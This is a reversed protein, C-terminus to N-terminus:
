NNSTGPRRQRMLEKIRDPNRQPKGNVKGNVPVDGNGPQPQNKAAQALREVKNAAATKEDVVPMETRVALARPDINDLFEPGTNTDTALVEAMKQLFVQQPDSLPAPKTRIVIGESNPFNTLQWRRTVQQDWQRCIRSHVLETDTTGIAGQTESEAKTGHKGETLEREPRHWARIMDRNCMDLRDLHSKLAEATQGWDFAEVKVAPINALEPTKAIDERTFPTLPVTFSAGQVAANIIEQIMQKPMLPLKTVPDVFSKGNPVGIMMQIGSAKREIRDANLSSQNSRWWAAKANENRSFGLIPDIHPDNVALFLYAADRYETGMTYGVLQRHPNAHLNIQGPLFSMLRDPVVRGNRLEWVVEQPWYGFQLSELAGPMADALAPLLDATAAEQIKKALDANGGDAVSDISRTGAEIPAKIATFALVIAPTLRMKWFLAPGRFPCEEFGAFGGFGAVSFLQDRETPEEVKM